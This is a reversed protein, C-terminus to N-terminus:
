SDSCKLKNLLLLNTLVVFWFHIMWILCCYLSCPLKTSNRYHMTKSWKKRGDVHVCGKLVKPNNKLGLLAFCFQLLKSFWCKNLSLMFNWWESFLIIHWHKQLLIILEGSQKCTVSRIIVFCMVLNGCLQCFKVKLISKVLFTIAWKVESWNM